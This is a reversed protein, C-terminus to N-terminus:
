FSVALFGAFLLLPAAVSLAVAVSSARRGPLRTAGTALAIGVGCALVLVLGIAWRLHLGPDDTAYAGRGGASVMRADVTVGAQRDAVALGLLPVQEVTFGGDVSTFTAVCGQRYGEGTCRTVTATGRQEHGLALWLPEASVWALFATLLTLVLLAVLGVAPRRPSRRTRIRRARATAIRGAGPRPVAETLWSEFGVDPEPEPEPEPRPRVPPPSASRPVTPWLDGAEPDDPPAEGTQAKDVPPVGAPANDAPPEDAAAREAPPAGAESPEGTTRRAPSPPRRPPTAWPSTGLDTDSTPELPQQPPPQAGHTSTVTKM